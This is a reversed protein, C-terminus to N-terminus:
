PNEVQKKRPFTNTKNSNDTQQQHVPKEYHQQQHLPEEFSPEVFVEDAVFDDIIKKKELAM